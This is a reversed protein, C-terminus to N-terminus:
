HLRAGGRDAAGAQVGGFRALVEALVAGGGDGEDGGANKRTSDQQGHRCAASAAPDRDAGIRVRRGDPKVPEM